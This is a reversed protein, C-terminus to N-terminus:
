IQLLIRIPLLANEACRQYKVSVCEFVSSITAIRIAPNNIIRYLLAICKTSLICIFPVNLLLRKTSAYFLGVVLVSVSQLVSSVHLELFSICLVRSITSALASPMSLLVSVCGCLHIRTFITCIYIIIVSFFQVKFLDITVGIGCFKGEERGRYSYRTAIVSAAAGLNTQWVVLFFCFCFCFIALPIMMHFQRRSVCSLVDSIVHEQPFSNANASVILLPLLCVFNKSFSLLVCWRCLPM